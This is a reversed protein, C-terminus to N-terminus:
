GSPEPLPDAERVMRNVLGGLAGGALPAVIYVWLHSFQGAILAPTISRAPNFSGGSIPGCVTAATFIFGGIALPALVGSWPARKDTAVTTVVLLFLFTFILEMVFAKGDSIGHAPANVADHLIASTFVVRLVVAAAIGGVIQAAWYPVIEAAPFRRAVSLGLTVAPNFHGGSIHGLAFIMLALGSGFGLAVGISLIASQGFLTIAAIGTFGAFFFGFTGIVEAVLRKSLAAPM